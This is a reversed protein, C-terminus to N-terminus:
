AEAIVTDDISYVKDEAGGSAIVAVSFERGAAICGHRKLLLSTRTSPCIKLRMAGRRRSVTADEADAEGFLHAAAIASSM